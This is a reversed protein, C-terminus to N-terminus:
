RAFKSPSSLSLMVINQRCAVNLAFTRLILSLKGGHRQIAKWEMGQAM